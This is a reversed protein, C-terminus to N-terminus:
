GFSGLYRNSQHLEAAPLFAQSLGSRELKHQLPEKSHKGRQKGGGGWRQKEKRKERKLIKKKRASKGGNGPTQMLLSSVGHIHTHAPHLPVRPHGDPTHSM